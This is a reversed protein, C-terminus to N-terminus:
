PHRPIFAVPLNSLGAIGQIANGYNAPISPEELPAHVQQGAFRFVGLHLAFAREITAVTATVRMTLRSPTVELITFGASQLYASLQQITSPTQGFRDAYAQPTLYQHYQPSAPDNVDHTFRVLDAANRPRLTITLALVAKCDLTHLPVVGRLIPILHGALTIREQGRLTEGCYAPQASAAVPVAMGIFLGLFILTAVCATLAAQWQHRTIWTQM